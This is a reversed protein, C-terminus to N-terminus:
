DHRLADAPDVRTARRAPIAMAILAVLTLGFAVAAFIFPDTPSVQYLLSGLLRTLALAGAIGTFLGIVVSRSGQRLVLALVDRPRAGLALRIGFEARRQDALYALVGYIGIAALSAALGGFVSMILVAFRQRDLSEALIQDMSLSTVPLDPDLAAIEHRIAGALALPDRQTKMLLALPPFPAQPGLYYIRPSPAAALSGSKTAGVVGVIPFTAGVFPLTVRRGIPDMNPSFLRAVNEDVIAAGPSGKEDSPSFDRGRLLPIGLTRFFDPSARTQWVVQGPPDPDGPIQIASGPGGNYPIYDVTAASLVGPIVRARELLSRAFATRQEPGRYQAPPLAVVATLVNEPRFGPNERALKVFSRGLLGTGILLILSAAIEFAVMSERLRRRAATSGRSSEKLSEALDVRSITLAPVLGFLASAGTSVAISFCMVWGNMSPQTGRILGAPGYLAFLHLAYVALLSGVAGAILALLLSETLLLRVIRVRPAGLVARISIEKRRMVGRALLLNSVNACAILMLAGVAALLVLMPTKLDGAQKGALPWVDISFGRDLSLQTPYQELLQAAIARLEERAREIMVGPKLRGFVDVYHPGRTGPAIEAPTFALPTWIQATRRYVSTMRTVGVVRYSERNMEINKGIISRDGGYRRIWLPESLIAVRDKGPQEEDSTFLSGLIPIIGLMPFASASIRAGPVNEPVGNGTLTVDGAIMGSIQTFCTARRRYEAFDQPSAAIDRLNHAPLNEQVIVLQDPNPYPLPHLLLADAASFIAVNASIALGLTVVSVAMFGPSAALSRLAYRADNM